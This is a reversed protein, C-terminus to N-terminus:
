LFSALHPVESEFFEHLRMADQQLAVSPGGARAVLPKQFGGDVARLCRDKPFLGVGGYEVFGSSDAMREEEVMRENVAIFASGKGGGVQREQHVSVLQDGSRILGVFKEDPDDFVMQIPRFYGRPKLRATFLDPLRKGKLRGTGM